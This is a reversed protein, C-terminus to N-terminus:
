KLEDLKKVDDNKQQTLRSDTVRNKLKNAQHHIKSAKNLNTLSKSM